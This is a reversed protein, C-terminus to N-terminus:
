AMDAAGSVAADSTDTAEGDQERATWYDRAWRRQVHRDDADWGLMDRLLRPYDIPVDHSALVELADKFRPAPGRM